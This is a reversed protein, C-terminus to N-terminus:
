ERRRRRRRGARKERKKVWNVNKLDGRWERRRRGRKTERNEGRLEREDFRTEGEM